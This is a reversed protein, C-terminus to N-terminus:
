PTKNLESRLNGATERVIQWPPLEPPLGTATSVESLDDAGPADRPTNLLRDGASITTAVPRPLRIGVRHHQQGARPHAAPVAGARHPFARQRHRPIRDANRPGPDTGFGHLPSRGPDGRRRGCPCHHRRRFRAVRGAHRRYAPSPASPGAAGPQQARAPIRARARGARHGFWDRAILPRCAQGGTAITERIVAGALAASGASPEINLAALLLPRM